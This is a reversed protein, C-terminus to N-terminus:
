EGIAYSENMPNRVNVATTQETQKSSWIQDKTVYVLISVLINYINVIIIRSICVFYM